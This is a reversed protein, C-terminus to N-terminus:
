DPLCCILRRGCESRQGVKTRRSMGGQIWKTYSLTYSRKKRLQLVEMRQTKIILRCCKRGEREKHVSDLVSLRLCSQNNIFLDSIVYGNHRVYFLTVPRTIKIALVFPLSENKKCNEIPWNKRCEHWTSVCSGINSLKESKQRWVDRIQSSWFM